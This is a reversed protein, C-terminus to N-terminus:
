EDNEREMVLCAGGLADTWDGAAVVTALTLEVDHAELFEWLCKSQRDHEVWDVLSDAFPTAVDNPQVTQVFVETVVDRRVLQHRADAATVLAWGFALMGVVGVVPRVQDALGHRPVCRCGARYRADLVRRCALEAGRVAV